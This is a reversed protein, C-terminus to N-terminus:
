DVCQPISGDMWWEKELKWQVCVNSEVMGGSLFPCNAIKLLMRRVLLLASPVLTAIESSAQKSAQTCDYMRASRRGRDWMRNSMPALMLSWRYRLKTPLSRWTWGVSRGVVLEFQTTASRASIASETTSCYVTTTTHPLLVTIDPPPDTGHLHKSERLTHSVFHPIISRPHRGKAM